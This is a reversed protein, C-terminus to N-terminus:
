ELTGSVIRPATFRRHDVVPMRQRTAAQEATDRGVVLTAEGVAQESIVRGWYDVISSHGHTLRGGPHEGGQAAALMYCQTEIARARLLMEWHAQGTVTTFASPVSILEAGALRLATYLEAFRLDYCVSMGLRGVPTDIVVLRDGAAYDDSERYRGRSDSVQADFLHLKDYRAVQQGQDDVLLSCARIKSRPQGDAPLPLTGAVIWLRLDIAAQKLWPLIPGAGEAEARGVAPLDARGMAAFNEPLVALQAGAEAARELLRRANALNAQIDAQSAMQIVALTM